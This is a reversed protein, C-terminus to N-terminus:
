NREEERNVMRQNFESTEDLEEIISDIYNLISNYKGRMLLFYNIDM